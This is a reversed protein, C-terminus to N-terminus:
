DIEFIELVDDRALEFAKGSPNITLGDYDGSAVARIADEGRILERRATSDFAFLEVNDTFLALLEDGEETEVFADEFTFLTTAVLADLVARFRPGMDDYEADRLLALADVLSQNHLATVRGDRDYVVRMGGKIVKATGADPPVTCWRESTVGWEVEDGSDYIARLSQVIGYDERAVSKVAGFDNMWDHRDLYLAPDEAVLVVDIDSGEKAEGRAHSGVIEVGILDRRRSAWAALKTVWKEFAASEM